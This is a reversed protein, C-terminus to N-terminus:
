ASEKNLNDLMSLVEENSPIDRMSDGYYGYRIRGEKDIIVLAPMRGLKLVNVRQGFMKAITHRPDPLGTFPMKQARWFESFARTDEPGLAMVEAQRDTFQQYDHRLQAM